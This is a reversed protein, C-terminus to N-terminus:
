RTFSAQRKMEKRLIRNKIFTPVIWDLKLFLNNVKGPVFVKKGSFLADIAKGAVEEPLMVARKALGKMQKHADRLRENTEVPGPCIVTLSVLTEELKLQLSQSFSYIFAKTAGYVEKNPIHFFGGLSGVNLIYSRRNSHLMDPLFQRCLLVPTIVNVSIQRAYFAPSFELFPNTSGIGANNILVSVWINNQKVWEYLKVCNEERSLDAEFYKVQVNYQAALASSKSDLSEGALSVMVLDYGRAALIETFAYGLGQGAGTVLAFGKGVDQEEQDM